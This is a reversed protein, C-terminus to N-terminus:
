LRKIRERNGQTTMKNHNRENGHFKTNGVKVNKQLQPPGATKNFLLSLQPMIIRCQDILRQSM